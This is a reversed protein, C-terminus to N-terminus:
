RTQIANRVIDDDVANIAHTDFAAALIPTASFDEIHCFNSGRKIRFYGGDAWRKGWSNKALWYKVGGREGFGVIEVGHFVGTSIAGNHSMYIGTPNDRFFPMYNDYVEFAGVIPGDRSITERMIEESMASNSQKQISTKSAFYRPQSSTDCKRTWMGVYPDIYDEHVGLTALANLAKAPAGGYCPNRGKIKHYTCEMINQVSLRLTKWKSGKKGILRDNFSHVASFAWCSNCSGQDGPERLWPHPNSLFRKCRFSWGCRLGITCQEAALPVCFTGLKRNRSFVLLSVSNLALWGLIVYFLVQLIQVLGVPVSFPTSYVDIPLIGTDAFKTKVIKILKRVAKPLKLNSSGKRRKKMEFLKRV